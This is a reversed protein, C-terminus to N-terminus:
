NKFKTDFPYYIFFITIVCLFFGGNKKGTYPIVYVCVYLFFYCCLLLFVFLCVFLTKNCLM